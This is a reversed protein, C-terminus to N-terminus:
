DKALYVPLFDRFREVERRFEEILKDLSESQGCRVALNLATSTKFIGTLSLNGSVGKISHTSKEIEQLNGSTLAAQLNEWNLDDMRAFEVLLEKLFEKEFVRALAEEENLILYDM